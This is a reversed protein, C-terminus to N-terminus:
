QCLVIAEYMSFWRTWDTVREAPEFEAPVALFLAFSGILITTKKRKMGIKAM